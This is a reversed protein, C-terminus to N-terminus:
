SAPAQETAKGSDKVRQAAEASWQDVAADQEAISPLWGRGEGALWVLRELGDPGPARIDATLTPTGRFDPGIPSDSFWGHGDHTGRRRELPNARVADWAARLAQWRDSLAKLRRYRGVAEIPSDLAEGDSTPVDPGLERVAALTEAHAAKLVPLVYAEGLVGASIDHLRAFAAELLPRRLSSLRAADHVATLAVAAAEIAAPTLEASLAGAQLTAASRAMAAQEWGVPFDRVNTSYAEHASREALNLAHAWLAVPEPSEFAGVVAAEIIPGFWADSEGPSLPEITKATKM